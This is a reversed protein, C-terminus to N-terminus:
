GPRRAFETVQRAFESFDKLDESLTRKLRERDIAEYQHVLLNRLGAARVLRRALAEDLVGRRGLLLFVDRNEEAHGLSKWAIVMEGVDIMCELVIQLFRETAAWTVADTEGAALRPVLALLRDYTERCADIKRVIREATRVVM